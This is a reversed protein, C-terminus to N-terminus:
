YKTTLQDVLSSSAYCGDNDVAVGNCVNYFTCFCRTAVVIVDHIGRPTKNHRSNDVAVDVEAVPM